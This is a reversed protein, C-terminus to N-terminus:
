QTKQKDFIRNLFFFNLCGSLMAEDEPGYSMQLITPIAIGSHHLSYMTACKAGVYLFLLIYTAFPRVTQNVADVWKVGTLQSQGKIGEMLAALGGTIRATDQVQAGEALAQAGKQKDAELQKDFMALEHKREDKKDLITMVEPALRLLGGLLGGLLTEIM